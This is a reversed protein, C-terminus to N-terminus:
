NQHNIKSLEWVKITGNEHGSLWYDGGPCFVIDSALDGGDFRQLVAGTPVDWRIIEGYPLGSLAQQGDATIAIGNAWIDGGEHLCRGYTGSAVDWLCLFPVRGGSVLLTKADEAIAVHMGQGGYVEFQRLQTGSAIDWIRATNDVSTSILRKGDPTFGLGNPGFRHGVLPALPMGTDLDWLAINSTLGYSIAFYRGDPSLAATRVHMWDLAPFPRVSVTEELEGLNLTAFGIAFFRNGRNSFRLHNVRKEPMPLFQKLSGSALDWVSIGDKGAALATTGDPSCAVALVPRAQQWHYRMGAAAEQESVPIVKPASTADAAALLAFLGLMILFVFREFLLTSM